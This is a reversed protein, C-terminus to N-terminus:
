DEPFAVAGALTAEARGDALARVTVSLPEGGGAILAVSPGAALGRALASLAVAVAGTGCALTEGEVGREYTRYRVHETSASAFNVNTGAVGFAPDRRIRAGEASVDVAAPDQVWVVAHPVGTNIADAVGGMALAVDLRPRMPVPPFTLAAELPGRVEAPHPGADTEIVMREGALGARWAVVAVCRAGNGCMEARSGDRNLIVMRVSGSASGPGVVLLGDVGAAACRERALAALADAEPPAHGAAVCIFSNGTGVV